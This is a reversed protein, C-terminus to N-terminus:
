RVSLQTKCYPFANWAREDLKKAASPFMKAVFKPLKRCIYTSSYYVKGYCCAGQKGTLTFYKIRTNVVDGNMKLHNMPWFKLPWSVLVVKLM